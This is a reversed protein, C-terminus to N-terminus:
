KCFKMGVGAHDSRIAIASVRRLRVLNSAKLHLAFMLKLRKNKPIQSPNVKLFIGATSIDTATCRAAPAGADVLYVSVNIPKRTSLRREM